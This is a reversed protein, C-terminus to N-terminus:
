QRARCCMASGAPHYWLLPLTAGQPSWRHMRLSTFSGRSHQLQREDARHGTNRLPAPLREEHQALDRLLLAVQRGAPQRQPLAACDYVSAGVNTRAAASLARCTVAGNCFKAADQHIGKLTGDENAARLRGGDAALWHSWLDPTGTVGELHSCPLLCSWVGPQNRVRCAHAPRNESHAHLPPPPPRGARTSATSGIGGLRASRRCLRRSCPRAWCARQPECVHVTFQIPGLRGDLAWLRWCPCQTCPPRPLHFFRCDQPRHKHTDGAAAARDCPCSM